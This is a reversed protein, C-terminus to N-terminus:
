FCLMVKLLCHMVDFTSQQFDKLRSLLFILATEVCPRTHTRRRILSNQYKIDSSNPLLLFRRQIPEVWHKRNVDQSYRIWRNLVKWVSCKEIRDFHPATMQCTSWNLVNGGGRWSKELLNRLNWKRVKEPFLCCM